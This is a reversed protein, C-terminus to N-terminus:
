RSWTRGPLSDHRGRGLGGCQANGAGLLGLKANSCKCSAVLPPHRNHRPSLWRTGLSALDDM